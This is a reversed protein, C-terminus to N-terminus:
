RRSRRMMGSRSRPRVAIQSCRWQMWTPARSSGAKEYARIAAINSATPGTVCVDVGYRPFAVDSLFARIPAPGHGRGICEPEGIFLDDLRILYLDTPDEGHISTQYESIM